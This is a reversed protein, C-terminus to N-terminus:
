MKSMMHSGAYIDIYKIHYKATSHTVCGWGGYVGTVCSDIFYIEALQLSTLM